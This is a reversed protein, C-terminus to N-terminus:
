GFYRDSRRKGYIWAWLNFDNNNVVIRERNRKIMKSYYDYMTQLNTCGRNLKPIADDIEETDWLLEGAVLPAVVKLVFSDPIACTSADTTMPTSNVYYVVKAREEGCWVVHLYNTGDSKTVITFYKNATTPYRGDVYPLEYKVNGNRDLIVLTFPLSIGTPLTYLQYVKEGGNHKIDIGTVGTLETSTKGTYAIIDGGIYVNGSSAYDTTTLEIETATTLFDVGVPMPKVLQVFWDRRLFSLDGATFAQSNSPNIYKWKCISDVIDNVRPLVVTQQDYNSSDSPEGLIKYIEEFIDSLVTINLAPNANIGWGIYDIYLSLTPADTLTLTTWSTTFSYYEAGDVSVSVAQLIGFATTFVTNAWDIVWVPIENSIIQAM